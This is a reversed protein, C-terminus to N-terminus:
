KFNRNFHEGYHFLQEIGSAEYYEKDLWLLFTLYFAIANPNVTVIM